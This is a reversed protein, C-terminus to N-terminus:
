DKTLSVSSLFWRVANGRTILIRGREGGGGGGIKEKATVIKPVVELLVASGGM